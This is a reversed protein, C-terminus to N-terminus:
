VFLKLRSLLVPNYYLHRDKFVFKLLRFRKKGCDLHKKIIIVERIDFPWIVIAAGYVSLVSDASLIKIVFMLMIQTIFADLCGIKGFGM